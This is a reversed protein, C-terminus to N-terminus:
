IERSLTSFIYVQVMIMNFHSLLVEFKPIIPDSDMLNKSNKLGRSRYSLQYPISNLTSQAHNEKTYNHHNSKPSHTKKFNMGRLKTTSNSLYHLTEHATSLQHHIRIVTTLLENPEFKEVFAKYDNFKENKQGCYQVNLKKNTSKCHFIPASNM